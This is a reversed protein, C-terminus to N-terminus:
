NAYSKCRGIVCPSYIFPSFYQEIHYRSTVNEGDVFIAEFVYIIFLHFLIIIIWELSLIFNKCTQTIAFSIITIHKVIKWITNYRDNQELFNEVAYHKKESSKLFLLRHSLITPIVYSLMKKMFWRILVFIVTYM